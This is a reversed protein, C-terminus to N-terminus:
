YQSTRDAFQKKLTMIKEFEQPYKDSLKKLVISKELDNVIKWNKFEGIYEENNEEIVIGLGFPKGNKWEGFYSEDTLFQTFNLGDQKTHYTFGGISISGLESINVGFQLIGKAFVGETYTGCSCILKGEGHYMGDAMEGIYYDSTDASRSFKEAYAKQYSDYFFGKFKGASKNKHYYDINFFVSDKVFIDAPIVEIIMRERKSIYEVLSKSDLEGLRAETTLTFQDKKGVANITGQGDILGNVCNGSWNYIYDLDEVLFEEPFEKQTDIRLFFNCDSNTKQWLTDIQASLNIGISFFTLLFFLRM